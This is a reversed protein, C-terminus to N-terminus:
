EPQGSVSTLTVEFIGGAEKAYEGPWGDTKLLFHVRVSPFTRSAQLQWTINTTIFPKTCTRISFRSISLL